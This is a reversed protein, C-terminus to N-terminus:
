SIHQIKIIIKKKKKMESLYETTNKKLHNARKVIGSIFAQFNSPLFYM